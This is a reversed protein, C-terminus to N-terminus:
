RKTKNEKRKLRRDWEHMLLAGTLALLSYLWWYSMSAIDKANRETKTENAIIRNSNNSVTDNIIGVATTLSNIDDHNDGIRDIARANTIQLESVIKVMADVQEGQNRIHEEQRIASQAMKEINSRTGTREMAAILTALSNQDIMGHDDIVESIYESNKLLTDIQEQTLEAASLEAVIGVVILCSFSILKLM